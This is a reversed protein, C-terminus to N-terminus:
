VPVDLRGNLTNKMESITKWKIYKIQNGKQIKWTDRRLDIFM